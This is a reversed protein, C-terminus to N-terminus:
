QTRSDLIVAHGSLASLSYPTYYHGAQIKWRSHKVYTYGATFVNKNYDQTMLLHRFNGDEHQM